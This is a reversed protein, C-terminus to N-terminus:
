GNTITGQDKDNIPQVEWEEKTIPEYRRVACFSPSTPWGAM